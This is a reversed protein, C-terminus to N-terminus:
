SVKVYVEKIDHSADKIANALHQRIIYSRSVNAVPGLYERIWKGSNFDKALVTFRIPQTNDPIHVEVEWYRINGTDHSIVVDTIIKATFNSLQLTKGKMTRVFMGHNAVSSYEDQLVNM